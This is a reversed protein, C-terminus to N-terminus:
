FRFHFAADLTIVLEKADGSDVQSVLELDGFSFAGLSVAGQSVMLVVARHVHADFFAEFYSPGGVDL